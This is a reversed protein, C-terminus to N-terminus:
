RQPASSSLYAEQHVASVARGSPENLGEFAADWALAESTSCAVSRVSPVTRAATDSPFHSEFISRYLYEEKNQPPNHPFRSAATALEEDSVQDEAQMRLTDIWNYGVGDSFQEKQRWIIEEPLYDEFAKRVVWKEIKGERIMKADPNIRMALDIFEKDLFPVRGEVGWAALSKNARLCDYLHLKSLKRLTEEHFERANPAKHFYLYGGFLEDSGEGSLVMKIGMSKIVRALLYMPTSARVTTVDYTELHYIVDRVADLGEQITFNVEHHITGIHEAARRAAALDPSGQLGIAFSHLQPYWAQDQDESEIRKAAFRKTIAAIVSSDLGGSLLVGYPVDSMLQRHVADELGKRLVDIPADNDKVAEYSEWDRQYWRQPMLGEKSYIFHGPPFPEIRHCHGELAKLESAVYLAGEQDWGIYLPIIGMHDRAIMFSDTECDYLAFAFIGNLRDLFGPGQQEYLALIIESDLETRFSYEPTEKRLERHNYIEGNVSLVLNGAQNKLPQRGSKPDVIALREHALIARESSFIGSWDPGRHRIKRSMELIEPRLTEAREGELGFVAIIGCM